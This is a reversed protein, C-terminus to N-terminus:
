VLSLTQQKIWKWIGVETANTRFSSSFRKHYTISACENVICLNLNNYMEKPPVYSCMCTAALRSLVNRFVSIIYAVYASFNSSIFMCTLHVCTCMLHYDAVTHMMIQVFLAHAYKQNIHVASTCKTQLLMNTKWINQMNWQCASQNPKKSPM